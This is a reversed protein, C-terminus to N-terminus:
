WRYLTHRKEDHSRDIEKGNEDVLLIGSRPKSQRDLEDIDRPGISIIGRKMMFKLCGHISLEWAIALDNHQGAPHDFTPKDTKTELLQESKLQQVLTTVLLAAGQDPIRSPEPFKYGQKLISLGDEKLQQKTTNSFTLQEVKAKGLRLALFDGFTRENSYDIVVHDPRYRRFMNNELYGWIKDYSTHSLQNIARLKPPSHEDDQVLEHCVIGFYDTKSAPDLGYVHRSM